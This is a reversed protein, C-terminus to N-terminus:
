SIRWLLEMAQLQKGEYRKTSYILGKEKTHQDVKKLDLKFHNHIQSDPYHLVVKKM